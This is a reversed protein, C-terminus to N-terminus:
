LFCKELYQIKTFNQLLNDFKTIKITKKENFNRRDMCRPDLGDILITKSVNQDNGTILFM